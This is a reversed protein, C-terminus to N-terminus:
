KKRRRLITLLSVAALGLTAPESVPTFQINDIYWPSSSDSYIAVFHVPSGSFDFAFNEDAATFYHNPYDFLSGDINQHYVEIMVGADQM